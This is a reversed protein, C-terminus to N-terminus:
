VISVFDVVFFIDVKFLYSFYFYILSTDTSCTLVYIVTVVREEEHEEEEEIIESEEVVMGAKPKPESAMLDLVFLDIKSFDISSITRDEYPTDSRHRYKASLYKNIEM